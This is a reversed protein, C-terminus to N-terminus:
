TTQRRRALLLGIGAACLVFTSPEPLPHLDEETIEITYGEIPNSAVFGAIILLEPSHLHTAQADIIAGALELHYHVDMSGELIAVPSANTYRVAVGHPKANPAAPAPYVTQLISDAIALTGYGPMLFEDPQLDSKFKIQTLPFTNNAISGSFLIDSLRFPVTGLNVIAAGVGTANGPNRGDSTRYDEYFVFGFQLTGTYVGPAIHSAHAGAACCLFLLLNRM